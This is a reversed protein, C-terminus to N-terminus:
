NPATGTVHEFLVWDLGDYLGAQACTQDKGPSANILTGGIQVARWGQAGLKNFTCPDVEEILKYQYTVDSTTTSTDLNVTFRTTPVRSGVEIAALAADAFSGDTMQKASLLHLVMGRPARFYYVIAIHSIGVWVSLLIAILVKPM